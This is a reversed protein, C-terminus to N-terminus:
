EKEAEEGAAAVGDEGPTASKSDGVKQEQEILERYLTDVSKFQKYSHNHQRVMYMDALLAVLYVLSAFPYHRDPNPLLVNEAARIDGNLGSRSNYIFLFMEIVFLVTISEKSFRFMNRLRPYKQIMPSAMMCVALLLGAVHAWCLLDCEEVSTAKNSKIRYAEWVVVGLAIRGMTKKWRAHMNDFQVKAKLLQQRAANIAESPKSANRVKQEMEEVLPNRITTM